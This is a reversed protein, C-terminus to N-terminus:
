LTESKGQVPKPVGEALAVAHLETVLRQFTGQPDSQGIADYMDTIPLLNKAALSVSMQSAAQKAGSKLSSPQITMAFNKHYDPWAARDDPLMNTPFKNFDQRTIGAEGLMQMRYNLTSFQIENSVVQKGTDRLFVGLLREEMKLSQNQTALYTDISDGSPVQNKETLGTVNVSGALRDYEGTMFQLM